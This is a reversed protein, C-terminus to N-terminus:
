WIEIGEIYINVGGITEAEYKNEYDKTGELVQISGLELMEDYYSQLLENLREEFDKGGQLAVVFNRDDFESTIHYLNPLENEQTKNLYKKM